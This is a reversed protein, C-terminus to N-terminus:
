LLGREDLVDCLAAAIEEPSGEVMEAQEAAEPKTMEIVELLAAEASESASVSELEREKMAARVKAVPVYRPPREAAQIGLVAPLCIKFEGHVGGPYEKVVTAMGAADVQVDSVLGLYPLGLRQALIAATQADLDDIAQCGTLILAAPMLDPITPLAQALLSATQRTTLGEEVGAVRVARDAGKALATYFVNEIEPADPAVVTVRGGLREKLLLAQELAHEDRENVILRLFELDLSKGDAAVELEEVVDPVMKFIAASNVARV